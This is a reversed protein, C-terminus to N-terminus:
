RCENQYRRYCEDCIFDEDDHKEQKLVDYIKDSSECVQRGDEPDYAYECSICERYHEPVSHYRDAENLLWQDYNTTM